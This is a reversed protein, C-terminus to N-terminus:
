FNFTISASATNTRLNLVDGVTLGSTTVDLVAIKTSTLGSLVMSGAVIGSSIAASGKLVNVTDVLTFSNAATTSQLPFYFRAVTSTVAEGVAIVDNAANGGFENFNTNGSHYFEMWNIAGTQANRYGYWIKGITATSGVRKVIFTQGGGDVANEVTVSVAYAVTDPGGTATGLNARYHGPTIAVTFDSIFPVNTTGLGYSQPFRDVWAGWTAGSDTSRRTYSRNGDKNEQSIVNYARKVILSSTGAFATNATSSTCAYDGPTVQDNCDDNTVAKATVGIGYDKYSELYASAGLQGKNVAHGNQTAAQTYVCGNTDRLVASDGDANVKFKAAVAQLAAIGASLLDALTSSLSKTKVIKASRATLTTTPADDAAITLTDAGGGTLTFPLNGAGDIFIEWGSQVESYDNGTPSNVTITTDSANITVSALKIPISM